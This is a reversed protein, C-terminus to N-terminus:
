VSIEVFFIFKSPTTYGLTYHFKKIDCIVYHSIHDIRIGFFLLLNNLLIDLIVQNSDSFDYCIKLWHFENAVTEM